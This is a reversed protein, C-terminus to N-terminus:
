PRQRTFFARFRTFFGDRPKGAPEPDYPLTRNELVARPNEVTLARAIEDGCLERLRETAAQVRPPRKGTNHADTALFHVMGRELMKESARKAEAGFQGLLSGATLQVKVGHGILSALVDLQSQLVLNREPHALVPTWGELQARYIPQEIMPPVSNAALEMLFYRSEGLPVIANGANLVDVMDHAFFYESGLVLNITGAVRQQLETIRSTLERPSWTRWRGRLVHPTAVITEIGEAAAMHCMAVAEDWEHPGDDVGPLCHHHLDIM